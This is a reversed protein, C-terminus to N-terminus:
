ELLSFKIRAKLHGSTSGFQKLKKERILADKKSAYSEYYVLRFPHHAKTALSMGNNHEAFRRRLDNTSGIYNFDDKISKIFYVYHM